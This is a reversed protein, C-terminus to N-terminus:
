EDVIGIIIADIPQKIDNNMAYITNHGETIIVNDGIGAGIQDVAIITEKSELEVRMFKSGVLTQHKKTSVINGIVKGIRM